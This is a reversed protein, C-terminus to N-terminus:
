HSHGLGRADSEEAAGDFAQELKVLLPVALNAQEWRKLRRDSQGEGSPEPRPQQAWRQIQGVLQRRGSPIQLRRVLHEAAIVARGKEWAPWKPRFYNNGFLTLLERFPWDQVHLRLLSVLAGVLSARDLSPQSEIALPIGLESFVERVLEGAEHLSRFVVLIDAPPVSTKGPEGDGQVLLRKIRRGIVEIEGVAGSCALIEVGHMGEAPRAERPNRFVERELHSMAPWQVTPRLQLGDGSDSRRDSTAPPVSQFDARSCRSLEEVTLKPHRRQLEELTRTTKAFLERRRPEPEGPLSIALWEVRGALNELVEQQTRTFDTFGDVVVFRLREFPKRQGDRVLARASWFRGEADFLHRRNLLLQYENYLHWLERDKATMGRQRCAQLFEDPWIELRKLERIFEDIQDLLGATAAIPAFYPLKGAAVGEDILRRLLGRKMLATLPRIPEESAELVAQAFQEFTTCNPAFCAKLDPGLLRGRIESAARHTPALWLGCGPGGDALARRYAALLRETKGSGAPGVIVVTGAFM